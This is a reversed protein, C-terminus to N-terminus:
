QHYKKLQKFREKDIWPSLYSVFMNACFYFLVFRILPVYARDNIALPIFFLSIGAFTQTLSIFASIFDLSCDVLVGSLEILKNTILIIMGFILLYVIWLQLEHSLIFAMANDTFYKKDNNIWYLLVMPATGLAFENIYNSVNTRMILM